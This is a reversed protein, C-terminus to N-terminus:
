LDGPDKRRFRYHGIPWEKGDHYGFLEACAMFFLRWRHFWRLAEREGYTDELIPLLTSRHQDLNRLWANATAEYHKGSWTWEAELLLPAPIRPALDRSPMIGGSFFYQSMWDSADAVEFLYPAGEHTFVHLFFRGDPTLWDAVRQMLRPWNRMHEFMEVSVIRDFHSGPEFHNMDCTVIDLNSLGRDRATALISERQSNSNSVGLIQSHPYREAMWLSLSGWGCGLELITQGDALAAHEATVELARQEAEGLSTASSEFLCGSYKKHPGLVQAYFAAQVEYHQENAKDTMLAIPAEHMQAIFAPVADELAHGNLPPLDKLRQRVLRRIGWRILADPVLGREALAIPLSVAM